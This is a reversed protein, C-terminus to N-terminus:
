ASDEESRTFKRVRRRLENSRFKAVEGDDFRVYCWGCADDIGVLTGVHGYRKPHTLKATVKM